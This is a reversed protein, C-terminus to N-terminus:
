RRGRGQRHQARRNEGDLWDPRRTNRRRERVPPTTPPEPVPLIELYPPDIFVGRPLRAWPEFHVPPGGLPPGFMFSESRTPRRLMTFGVGPRGDRPGWEAALATRAAPSRLPLDCPRSLDWNVGGASLRVRFSALLNVIPWTTLGVERLPVAALLAAAHALWEAASLELRELFGRRYTHPWAAGGSLGGLDATSWEEDHAALLEAERSRFQCPRCGGCEFWGGPAACHPLGALEVQVRIFEGRPEGREELWDAYVLRPEDAEPQALVAARFAAHEDV